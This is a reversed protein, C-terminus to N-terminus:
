AVEGDLHAELLVRRHIVTGYSRAAQAALDSCQAKLDPRRHFLSLLDVAHVADRNLERWESFIEDLHEDRRRQLIARAKQEAERRRLLVAARAKERRSLSATGWPEGVLEAFRKVGGSAGCSFCHFVGKSLDASFSPHKDEHWPCSGTVKNGRRRFKFVHRELLLPFRALYDTAANTM